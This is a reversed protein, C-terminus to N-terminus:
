LKAAAMCVCEDVVDADDVEGDRERMMMMKMMKTRRERMMMMKKMM